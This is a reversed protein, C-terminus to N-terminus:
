YHDKYRNIIIGIYSATYDRLYDLQGPNEVGGAGDLTKFPRSMADARVFILPISSCFMPKSSFHFMRM